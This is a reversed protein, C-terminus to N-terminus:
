AVMISSDIPAFHEEFSPLGGMVTFPFTLPPSTEIGPFIELWNTEASIIM